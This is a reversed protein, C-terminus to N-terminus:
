SKDLYYAVVTEQTWRRYAMASTYIGYLDALGCGVGWSVVGILTPESAFGPRPAAYQSRYVLPGGSDGQCSDFDGSVFGACIAGDPVTEATPEFASKCTQRDVVPILVERLTESRYDIETRGWGQARVALYPKAIWYIDAISPLRISTRLTPDLDKAPQSLKLLAIDNMLTKDDYGPHVVIREVQQEEGDAARSLNLTGGLVRLDAENMRKGNVVVCHAATLVWEPQHDNSSWGDVSRTIPNYRPSVFSGGCYHRWKGPEGAKPMRLSVAWAGQGPLVDAGGLVRPSGRAVEGRSQALAIRPFFQWFALSAVAVTLLKKMLAEIPERQDQQDRENDM